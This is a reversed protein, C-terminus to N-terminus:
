PAKTGSPPSLFQLLGVTQAHGGSVWTSPLFWVLALVWLPLPQEPGAGWKASTREACLATHSASAWIM